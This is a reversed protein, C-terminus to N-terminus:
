KPYGAIDLEGAWGEAQFGKIWTRGVSLTPIHDTGSKQKFAALDEETKLMTVTYPVRRKNLFDRAQQCLDGCKETAYLVVPFNRRAARAEYSLKTEDVGSAAEAEPMSIKLKEADEVPTDGYRVKGDKDVWRYVDTAHAAQWTLMFGLGMVFCLRKM